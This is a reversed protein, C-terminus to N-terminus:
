LRLMLNGRERDGKKNQDKGNYNITCVLKKLERECRSVTIAGKNEEQHQMVMKILLDLIESEFGVTQFSLFENFKVLCSDEWKENSSGESAVSVAEEVQQGAGVSSEELVVLAGSSELGWESGDAEVVRPPELDVLGNSELSGGRAQLVGSLLPQGFVSILSSPSNESNFEVHKPADNM